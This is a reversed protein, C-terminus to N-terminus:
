SARTREMRRRMHKDVAVNQMMKVMEAIPIDSKMNKLSEISHSRLFLRECDCWHAGEMLALPDVVAYGISGVGTPIGELLAVETKEEQQDPLNLEKDEHGHEM